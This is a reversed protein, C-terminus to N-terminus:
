EAKPLARDFLKKRYYDHLVFQSRCLGDVDSAVYQNDQEENIIRAKVNDNMQIEILDKIEKQIDKDYIPCAIEIRRDLNRVMWDASSIFFLEEGRNHFIIIRSHELFKDVISIAEINESMGPIGPILSCAGRIILIIKVGANNAQYLKYIIDKDVLTNIKITIRAEKGAKANRIENEILRYFKKRM